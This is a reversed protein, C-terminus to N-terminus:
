AAARWAFDDFAEALYRRARDTLEISVVPIGAFSKVPYAWLQGVRGIQMPAAGRNHPLPLMKPPVIEKIEALADNLASLLEPNQPDVAFGYREALEQVERRQLRAGPRWSVPRPRGLVVNDSVTMAPVATRNARM